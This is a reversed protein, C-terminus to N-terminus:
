VRILYYVEGNLSHSRHEGSNARVGLFIQHAPNFQNLIIQDRRGHVEKYLLETVGSKM